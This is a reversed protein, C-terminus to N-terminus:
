IIFGACSASRQLMKHFWLNRLVATFQLYTFQIQIFLVHFIFHISIEFLKLMQFDRGSFALM